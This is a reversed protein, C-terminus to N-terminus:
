HMLPPKIVIVDAGTILSALCNAHRKASEILRKQIMQTRDHRTPYNIAILKTNLPIIQFEFVFLKSTCLASFKSFTKTSKLLFEAHFYFCTGFVQIIEKCCM